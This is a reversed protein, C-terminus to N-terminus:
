PQPQERVILVSCPAHSLIVDSTSGIMLRDVPGKNSSGLVVLDRNESEITQLIREAVHGETVMPPSGQFPGPLQGRFQIAEARRQEIEAEHERVWAQAMAEVDPERARTEIWDPVQGAFMPTVVTILRGVSQEPWTLKRLVDAAERSAASGDFAVLVRLPKEPADADRHRVVLVPVTTTHVISKAVSGLFFSAIGPNSRAGVVVLEARWADTAVAIGVRPNKVGVITEATARLPESL